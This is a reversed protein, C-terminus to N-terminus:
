YDTTDDGPLGSDFDTTDSAPIGEDYDTPDDGPLGGTDGRDPEYDKEDDSPEDEWGEEPEDNSDFDSSAILHPWVAVEVEECRPAIM